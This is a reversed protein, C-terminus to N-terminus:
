RMVVEAVFDVQEPEPVCPFLILEDCGAEAYSDLTDRLRAGDAIVGKALYEAKPGV